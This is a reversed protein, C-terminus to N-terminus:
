FAVVKGNHLRGVIIFYVTKQTMIKESKEIKDWDAKQNRGRGSRHKPIRLTRIVKM